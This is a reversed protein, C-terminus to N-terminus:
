GAWIRNGLRLKRKKFLFSSLITWIKPQFSHIIVYVRMHLKTCLPATVRSMTEKMQTEGPSLSVIDEIPVLKPLCLSSHPLDQRALSKPIVIRCHKISISSKHMAAGVIANDHRKTPRHSRESVDESTTVNPSM